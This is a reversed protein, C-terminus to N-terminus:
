GLVDGAELIPLMTALAITAVIAALMLILIPELVASLRQSAAAVQDDYDKALRHLMEELRGSQQGVSFVQVVLPPFAASAMLAQSIDGGASVASECEFLARQLAVNRTSKRAIEIARVFMVGSQLLTEVVVAIRVVAAKCVLSGVLPVRLVFSDWTHRGQQTRLLGIWVCIIALVVLAALWGWDVLFDSATKVIRTPLPLPRGQDLLPQLINPVVYTMLFVSVAVATVLVMCPYLLATSLKGHLQERRERFCALRELAIDLTGTDEGVEVLNLCLADFVSPQNAMAVALSSGAAVQERVLLLTARFSGSYQAALIDMAETLPTGVGLLTSLERAFPTVKGSDRRRGSSRRVKTSQVQALHEVTLGRDRLLDRAQRPTEAALTGKLRAALSGGRAADFAQYAFVAM